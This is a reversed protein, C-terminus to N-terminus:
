EKDARTLRYLGWLAILLMVMGAVEYIPPRDSGGLFPFVKAISDASTSASTWRYLFRIYMALVAGIALYAALGLISSVEPQGFADQFKQWSQATEDPM